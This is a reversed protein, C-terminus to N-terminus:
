ERNRAGEIESKTVTHPRNPFIHSTVTAGLTKYLAITEETRTLPVHPDNDSNSIYVPTGAFDGSYVNPEFKEGIVGGTFIIIKKYKQANLAAVESTLCAGQSFGLLIINESGVHQAAMAIIDQVARVASSLWPENQVRPAMFSYPYWTHNTARPALICTREDAFMQALSAIDEPSGGRGHTAIIVTNAEKLAVGTQFYNDTQHM